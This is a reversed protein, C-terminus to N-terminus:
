ELLEPAIVYENQRDQDFDARSGDLVIVLNGEDNFYYNQNEDIQTFVYEAAAQETESMVADDAAQAKREEMQCLIEDSIITVYDRGNYLEGLTMVADQRKDVNYYRRLESDEAGGSENAYIILTFWEDSDTVVEYGTLELRGGNRANEEEFCEVLQQTYGGTDAYMERAMVESGADDSCLAIGDDADQLSLAEALDTMVAGNDACSEGGDGADLVMPTGNEDFASEINEGSRERLTVARFLGGVVPARGMRDAMQTNLNPLLVLILVVAAASCVATSIYAARRRRAARKRGRAVAERIRERVYPPVHIERYEDILQQWEENRDM